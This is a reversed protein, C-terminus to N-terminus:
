FVCLSALLFVTLIITYDRFPRRCEGAGTASQVTFDTMDLKGQKTSDGLMNVVNTGSVGGNTVTSGTGTTWIVKSGGAGGGDAVIKLDSVVAQTASDGALKSYYDNMLSQMLEQYLLTASPKPTDLADSLYNDGYQFLLSMVGSYSYTDASADTLSGIPTVQLLARRRASSSMHQPAHDMKLDSFVVTVNGCKACYRHLNERLRRSIEKTIGQTSMDMPFKCGVKMEAVSWPEKDPNLGAAMAITRPVDVNYQIPPMAGSRPEKSLTDLASQFAEAGTKVPSPSQSTSAQTSQRRSRRRLASGMAALPVLKVGHGTSATLLRRRVPNGSGDNLSIVAVLIVRDSLMLASQAKAGPVTPWNYGPNIYWAKNIRDDIGYKARVLATHNDALEKSFESVGLLNVMVWQSVDADDHTSVGSALPKVAYSNYVQQAVIDTRIACSFDGTPGGGLCQDYVGQKLVVQLKNGASASAVINYGQEFIM